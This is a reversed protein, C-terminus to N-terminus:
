TVATPRAEYNSWEDVHQGGEEIPLGYREELMGILRARSGGVIVLDLDTLKRWKTQAQRTLLPWNTEIEAWTM